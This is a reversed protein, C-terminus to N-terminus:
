LQIKIGFGERVRVSLGLRKLALGVADRKLNRM